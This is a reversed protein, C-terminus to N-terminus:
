RNERKHECVCVCECVYGEHVRQLTTGLEKGTLTEEEDAASHAPSLVTGAVAGREHRPAVRLRPLVDLGDELADSGLNALLRAAVPNPLVSGSVVDLHHVISDLISVHLYPIRIVGTNQMKM